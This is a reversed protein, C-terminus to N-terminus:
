VAEGGCVAGCDHDQSLAGNTSAAEGFCFVEFAMFARTLFSDVGSWDLDYQERLGSLYELVDKDM